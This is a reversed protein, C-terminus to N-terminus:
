LLNKYKREADLLLLVIDMPKLFGKGESDIVLNAGNLDNKVELSRWKAPFRKNNTINFKGGHAAANRCHYFFNALADSKLYRVSAPLSEFAMVILMNSMKSLGEIRRDVKDIKSVMNDDNILITNRDFSNVLNSPFLLRPYQPVGEKLYMKEDNRLDFGDIYEEWVNGTRLTKEIKSLESLFYKNWLITSGYFNVLYQYVYHYYPKDKDFEDLIFM